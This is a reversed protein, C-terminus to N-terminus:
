EKGGERECVAKTREILDLSKAEICNGCKYRASPWMDDIKAPCEACVIGQCGWYYSADKAADERIRELTDPQKHTLWSPPCWAHVTGGFKVKEFKVKEGDVRFVTLEEGYEVCFLGCKHESEDFGKGAYERFETLLYVADGVKIPVGDADLIEHQPRKVREGEVVMYHSASCDYDFGIAVEVCKGHQYKMEYVGGFNERVQAEDGFQVPEGDDFRPRPLYEREIRDALIIVADNRCNFCESYNKCNMGLATAIVCSGDFREISRLQEVLSKKEGM